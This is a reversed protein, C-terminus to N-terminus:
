CCTCAPFPCPAPGPPCSPATPTFLDDFHTTSVPLLTSKDNSPATPSIKSCGYCCCCFTFKTSEILVPRHWCFLCCVRYARPPADFRECGPSLLGCCCCCCHLSATLWECWPSLWEHWWPVAGRIRVGASMAILFLISLCLCFLIIIIPTGSDLFWLSSSM